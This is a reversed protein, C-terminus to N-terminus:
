DGAVRRKGKTGIKEREYMGGPVIKFRGSFHGETKRETQNKKLVNGFRTRGAPGGRIKM